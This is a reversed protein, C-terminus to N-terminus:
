QAVELEKRCGDPDPLKNCYSFIVSVYRAISAQERRQEETIMGESMQKQLAALKENLATTQKRQEKRIEDIIEANDVLTTNNITTAETKFEIKKQAFENQITLTINEKLTTYAWTLSLSIAITVGILAMFKWSKLFARIPTLPPIPIM